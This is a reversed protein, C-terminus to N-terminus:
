DKKLSSLYKQNLLRAEKAAIDAKQQAIIVQSRLDDKALKKIANDFIAIKALIHSLM